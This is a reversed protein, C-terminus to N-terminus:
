GNALKAQKGAVLLAKLAQEDGDELAQVYEGLRERLGEIEHALNERNALFLEAWMEENLYAVRTLDQYSGASFGLQHRATDSRIFAGAVAHALQSTFAITADHEAPAAITVNLFGISTFLMEAAKLAILNTHEDRCLIMTGGDFLHAFSHRYGSKEIGTMPHGGVFYGDHQAVAGSLAACVPVKVGATDIIIAGKKFNALNATVFDITDQPYLAVLVIDCDNLTLADMETERVSDPVLVGDLVGERLAQELVTEDIDYGLVRNGTNAKLAKALSGGILGLGIIGITKDALTPVAAMKAQLAEMGM